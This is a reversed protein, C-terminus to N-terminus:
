RLLAGDSFQSNVTAEVLNGFNNKLFELEQRLAMVEMKSAGPAHLNNIVTMAAGNMQSNPTVYGPRSLSILEPGKEGVVVPRNAPTFGGKERFLLNGLSAFVGGGSSGASALRNIFGELLRELPEWILKNQVLDVLRRGMNKIADGFSRAARSASVLDRALGQSFRRRAEEAAEVAELWRDFGEIETDIADTSTEAQEAIVKTGTRITSTVSDRAAQELKIVERLEKRHMIEQDIQKLRELGMLIIQDKGAIRRNTNVLDDTKFELVAKEMRARAIKNHTETRAAQLSSDTFGKFNGFVSSLKVGLNVVGEIARFSAVAIAEIADANQLIVNTVSNSLKASLNTFVDQLHEANRASIDTVGGIDRFEAELASVADVGEGIAAALKFGAEEGFLRGALAARESASEVDGLADIASRLSNETTGTIDVGANVFTDRLAGVETRAQGLRRLFDGFGQRTTDQAVGLRDFAFVLSQYSSVSLDVTKAAFSFLFEHSIIM